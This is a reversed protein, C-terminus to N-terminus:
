CIGFVNLEILLYMVIITFVVYTCLRREEFCSSFRSISGNMWTACLLSGLLSWYAPFQWKVEVLIM